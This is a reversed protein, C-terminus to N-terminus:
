LKRYGTYFIAILKTFATLPVLMKVTFLVIYNNAFM